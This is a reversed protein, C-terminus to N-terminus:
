ILGTVPNMENTEPVQKLTSMHGPGLFGTGPSSLASKHILLERGEPPPQCAVQQPRVVPDLGCPFSLLLLEQPKSGSCGAPGSASQLEM